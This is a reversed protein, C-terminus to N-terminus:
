AQDRRHNSYKQTFDQEQERMEIHPAIKARHAIAIGYLITAGILCICSLAVVWFFNQFVINFKRFVVYTESLLVLLISFSIFYSKGPIPGKNHSESVSFLASAIFSVTLLFFSGETFEQRFSYKVSDGLMLALALTVIQTSLSLGTFFFIEKIVPHWKTWWLSFKSPNTNPLSLNKM